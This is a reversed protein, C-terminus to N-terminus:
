WSSELASKCVAPTIGEVLARRSRPGRVQVTQYEAKQDQDPHVRREMPLDVPPDRAAILPTYEGVQDYSDQIHFLGISARSEDSYYVTPLRRNSFVYITIHLDIAVQRLLQQTKAPVPIVRDEPYRIHLYFKYPCQTKTQSGYNLMNQCLYAALAPFPRPPHEPDPDQQHREESSLSHEALGCFKKLFIRASAPDNRHPLHRATPAPDTDTNSHDEDM